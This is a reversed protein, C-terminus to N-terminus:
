SSDTFNSRLSRSAKNTSTNLYRDRFSKQSSKILAAHMSPSHKNHIM